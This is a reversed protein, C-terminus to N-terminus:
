LRKCEEIYEYAQEMSNMIKLPKKTKYFIKVLEFITKIIVGEAVVSTCILKKELFDSITELVGVFEKVQSISLIGMLRVDIIYVFRTDLKEIEKMSQKFDEVACTWEFPTPKEKKVDFLFVITNNKNIVKYDIFNVFANEM